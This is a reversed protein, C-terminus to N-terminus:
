LVQRVKAAGHVGARVGFAYAGGGQTIRFLLVNRGRALDVDLRDDGIVCGRM